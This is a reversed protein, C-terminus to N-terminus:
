DVCVERIFKIEMKNQLVCKWSLNSWSLFISKQRQNKEKGMIGMEMSTMM